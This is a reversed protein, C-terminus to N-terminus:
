IGGDMLIDRIELLKAIDGVITESCYDMGSIDGKLEMLRSKDAEDAGDIMEDIKKLCDDRFSCFLNKKRNDAGVSKADIIQNVLEREDENLMNYANKSKCENVVDVRKHEDIYKSVNKRSELLTSINGLSEVKLMLKQCDNFFRKRDESLLSSPKIGNRVLLDSLKRNSELLRKRNIKSRLLKVARNLYADSSVSESLRSNYENLANYFSFQASLNVDNRIMNMIESLLKRNGKFLSPVNEIIIENLIGFNDCRSESLLADSRRMSSVKGELLEKARDFGNYDGNVISDNMMGIYKGIINSRRSM